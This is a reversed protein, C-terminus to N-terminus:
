GLRAALPAITGSSAASQWDAETHCGLPDKCPANTAHLLFFDLLNL